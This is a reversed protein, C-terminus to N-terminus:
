MSWFEGYVLLRPSLLLNLGEQAALVEVLSSGIKVLLEAM